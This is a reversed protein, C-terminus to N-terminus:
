AHKQVDITTFNMTIQYDKRPCKVCYVLTFTREDQFLYNAKYLDLHCFHQGQAKKLESDAFQITHFFRLPNEKFFVNIAGSELSYVYERYCDVKNNERTTWTGEERYYM